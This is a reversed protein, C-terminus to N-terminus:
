AHDLTRALRRLEQALESRREFYREPMRWDPSLRGIRRALEALPREAPERDAGTGRWPPRPCAPTV